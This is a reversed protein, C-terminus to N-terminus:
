LYDFYRSWWNALDSLHPNKGTYKQGLTEADIYIFGDAETQAIVENIKADEIKESISNSWVTFFNGFSSFRISLVYHYMNVGYIPPELIALETFFSADQVNEDLKFYKGVIANLKPKLAEVRRMSASHNFGSPYECDKLDDNLQLLKLKEADM